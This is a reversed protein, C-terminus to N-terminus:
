DTVCEFRFCIVGHYDGAIVPREDIQYGINAYAMVDGTNRFEAFFGTESAVNQGNSYVSIKGETTNNEDTPVLAIQGNEDFNTVYGNIHYGNEVNSLDISISSELGEQFYTPIYITYTSYAHYDVDVEAVYDGNEAAADYVGDGDAFAFVTGTFVISLIAIVAVLSSIFKKM